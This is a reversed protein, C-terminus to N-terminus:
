EDEKLPERNNQPRFDKGWAANAIAIDLRDQMAKALALGREGCESLIIAAERVVEAQLVVPHKVATKIPSLPV